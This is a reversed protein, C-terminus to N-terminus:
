LSPIFQWGNFECIIKWSADYIQLNQDSEVIPKPIIDILEELENKNVEKLDIINSKNIKENASLSLFDSIKPNKIKFLIIEALKYISYRYVFINVRQLQKKEKLYAFATQELFFHQLICQETKESLITKRGTLLFYIYYKDNYHKSLNLHRMALHITKVDLLDKSIHKMKDKLKEIDTKEITIKKRLLLYDLCEILSKAKSYGTKKPMKLEFTREWSPLSNNATICHGCNKCIFTDSKRDTRFNNHTCIPCHKEDKIKTENKLTELSLEKNEPFFRQCYTKYEAPSPSINKEVKEILPLVSLIYENENLHNYKTKLLNQLSEIRNKEANSINKVQQFKKLDNIIQNKENLQSMYINHLSQFNLTM